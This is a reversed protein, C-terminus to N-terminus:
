EDLVILLPADDYVVESRARDDHIVDDRPDSARLDDGLISDLHAPPGHDRWWVKLAVSDGAIKIQVSARRRRGRHGSAHEIELRAVWAELSWDVRCVLEAM